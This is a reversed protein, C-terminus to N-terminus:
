FHSDMHGQWVPRCQADTLETVCCVGRAGFELACYCCETSDTSLMAWPLICGKVMVQPAQHPHEWDGRCRCFTLFVFSWCDSGTLAAKILCLFWMSFFWLHFKCVWLFECYSQADCLTGLVSPVMALLCFGSWVHGWSRKWTHEVRDEMHQSREEKDRPLQLSATMNSSHRPKDCINLNFIFEIWSSVRRKL